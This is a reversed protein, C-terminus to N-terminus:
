AEPESNEAEPETTQGLAEAVAANVADNIKGVLKQLFLQVPQILRPQAVLANAIELVAQPYQPGQQKGLFGAMLADQASRMKAHQEEIEARMAEDAAKQQNMQDALQAGVANALDAESTM